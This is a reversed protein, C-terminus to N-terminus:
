VLFSFEITKGLKGLTAKIDKDQVGRSSALDSIAGGLMSYEVFNKPMVGEVHVVISPYIPDAKKPATM